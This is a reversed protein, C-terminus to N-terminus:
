QAFESIAYHISQYGKIFYNHNMDILQHIVENWIANWFETKFVNVDWLMSPIIRLVNDYWM